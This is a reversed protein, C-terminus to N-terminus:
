AREFYFLILTFLSGATADIAQRWWRGLDTPMDALHPQTRHFLGLSISIGILALALQAAAILRDQPWYWVVFGITAPIFLVLWSLILARLFHTQPKADPYVHRLRMFGIIALHSAYTLAYPWFFQRPFEVKLTNGALLWMLGPTNTSIVGHMTHTHLRDHEIRPWISNYSVFLLMPPIVWIWGGLATAIYGVLAAGLLAAANLSSLRRWMLVLLVWGFAVIFRISLDRPTLWIYKNLLIFAGLPVLLNDLGRWAIGELLMVLFGITLSILLVKERAMQQDNTLLLLPIHTSLFAITFFALSGEASKQSEIGTYRHAGYSIGVLAAVADAFTLILIPICFLIARGHVLSTTTHNAAIFLIAVSIPFYLDGRSARDVGGIVAGLPPWFKAAALALACFSALLLVPWARDFLSPLLLTVLGMGVHMLKRLIEPNPNRLKRFLALAIWLLLFAGLIITMGALPHM